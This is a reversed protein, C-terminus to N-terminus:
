KWRGIAFWRLWIPKTSDSRATYIKFSSLSVSESYVSYRAEGAGSSVLVVPTNGVYNIPFTITVLSDTQGGLQGWQLLTGDPM